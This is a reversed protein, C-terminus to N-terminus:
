PYFLRNSAVPLKRDQREAVVSPCKLGIEARRLIWCLYPASGSRDGVRNFFKQRFYIVPSVILPPSVVKLAM